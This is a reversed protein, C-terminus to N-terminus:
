RKRSEAEIVDLRRLIDQHGAFILPVRQDISELHAINIDLAAKLENHLRMTTERLDKIDQELQAVSRASSWAQRGLFGILAAIGGTFIGVVWHVFEVTYESPPRDSLVAERGM